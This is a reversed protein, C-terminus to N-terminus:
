AQLSNMYANLGEKGHIIYTFLLTDLIMINIMIFLILLTNKLWKKSPRHIKFVYMFLPCMFITLHAFFFRTFEIVNTTNSLDGPLLLTAAGSIIGFIVMYDKLATNKSIFIFPFILTSIACLTEPTISIISDPLNNRYVPTLLKLFHLVFALSLMTFIAIKKTKTSKNKFIFYFALCAMTCILLYIIHTLSFLKM